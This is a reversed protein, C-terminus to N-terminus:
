VHTDCQDGELLLLDELVGFVLEEVGVDVLVELGEPGVLVELLPEIPGVM